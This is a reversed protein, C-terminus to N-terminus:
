IVGDFGYDNFYATVSENRSLEIIIKRLQKLTFLDVSLIRFLTLISKRLYKTWGAEDLEKIKQTIIQFHSFFLAKETRRLLRILSPETPFQYPIYHVDIGMQRNIAEIEPARLYDSLIYVQYTHAIEKILGSHIVNMAAFTNTVLLLIRKKSKEEM